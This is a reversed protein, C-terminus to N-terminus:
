KAFINSVDGDSTYRQITSTFLLISNTSFALLFLLSPIQHSIANYLYFFLFSQIILANSRLVPLVTSHFNTTMISGCESSKVFFYDFYCVIANKVCIIPIRKCFNGLVPMNYPLTMSRRYLSVIAVRSM